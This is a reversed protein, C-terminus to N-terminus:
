AINIFEVGKSEFLYVELPNEPSKKKSKPPLSKYIKSEILGKVQHYYISFTYNPPSYRLKTSSPKHTNQIRYIVAKLKLFQSRSVTLFMKSKFMHNLGDSICIYIYICIYTHIYIYICLYIHIYLSLYIFLYM